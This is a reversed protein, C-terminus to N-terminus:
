VSWIEHVGEEDRFWYVRTLPDLGFEEYSAALDRVIKRAEHESGIDCALLRDPRRGFVSVTRVYISHCM